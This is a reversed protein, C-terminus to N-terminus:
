RVPHRRRVARRFIILLICSQSEILIVGLIALAPFNALEADILSSGDIVLVGGLKATVQGLAALDQGAASGTNAGLM